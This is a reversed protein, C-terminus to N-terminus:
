GTMNDRLLLNNGHQALVELEVRAGEVEPTYGIGPNAMACYTMIVNEGNLGEEDGALHPRLLQAQPHARAVGNNELVLVQNSPAVYESAEGISFFRASSKQNRLGVHVWVYPFGM